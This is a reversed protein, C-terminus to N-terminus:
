ELVKSEGEMTQCFVSVWAKMWFAKTAKFIYTLPDQNKEGRWDERIKCVPKATLAKSCSHSILMQLQGSFM